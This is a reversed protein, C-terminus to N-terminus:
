TIEIEVANAEDFAVSETQSEDDTDKEPRNARRAREVRKRLIPIITAALAIAVVAGDRKRQQRETDNM